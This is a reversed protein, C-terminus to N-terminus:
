KVRLVLRNITNAAPIVDYARRIYDIKYTDISTTVHIALPLIYTHPITIRTNTM